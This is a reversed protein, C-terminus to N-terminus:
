RRRVISRAEPSGAMWTTALYIVAVVALGVLTAAVGTAFDPIRGGTVAHAALWGMGAAAVAGMLMQLIARLVGELGESTHFRRWLLGLTLAHGSIAVSSAVAVGPVGAIRFGLLFLPIAPVMWATGAAVPIWMQRHAYFSRGFIQHIGWAPISLSYGILAAATLM